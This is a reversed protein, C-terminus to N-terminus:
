CWLIRWIRSRSWMQAKGLPTFRCVYGAAIPIFLSFMALPVGMLISTTWPLNGLTALFVCLVLAIPVWTYKNVRGLYPKRRDTPNMM